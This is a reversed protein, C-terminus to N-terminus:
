EAPPVPLAELTSPPNMSMSKAGFMVRGGEPHYTVKSFEGSERLLTVVADAMDPDVNLGRDWFFDTGPRLGGRILVENAHNELGERIVTKKSKPKQEEVVPPEALPEESEVTAPPVLMTTKAPPMVPAMAKPPPGKQGAAAVLEEIDGPEEEPPIDVDEAPPPGQDGEPPRGTLREFPTEGEAPEELDADDRPPMPLGMDEEGGELGAAQEERAKTDEESEGPGPLRDMYWRLEAFLEDAVPDAHDRELAASIVELQGWSMEVKYDGFTKSVKDIKM